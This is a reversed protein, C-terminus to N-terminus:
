EEREMKKMYRELIMDPRVQHIWDQTKIYTIELITETM